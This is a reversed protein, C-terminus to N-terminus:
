DIMYFKSVNERTGKKGNFEWEEHRVTFGFPHCGMLNRISWSEGPNNQGVAARLQGLAINKNPGFELHGEANIDLRFRYNFYVPKNPDYGFEARIREAHDERVRIKLKLQPRTETTEGTEADTRAEPPLIDIEEITQAVCEGIPFLTRETDNADDYTVALFMDKDFRAM